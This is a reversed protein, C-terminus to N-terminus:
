LSLELMGGEYEAHGDRVTVQSKTYIIRRDCSRRSEVESWQAPLPIPNTKKEEGCCKTQGEPM